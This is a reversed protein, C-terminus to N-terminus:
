KGSLSLAWLEAGSQVNLAYLKDNEAHVYVVGNSTYLPALVKAELTRLERRQNNEIAYVKGAETAVIVSGGVVAPSSSIPRELNIEAVESGSEADVVYVKGDLCGAYINNGSAAPSAWFWNGGMFKWKLSGDEVRVAYLHRDFSGFYLADNYIIPTSTIAGEAEFVWKESGDATNLAYLRKDFSGIYLTDGDVFPTSWLKDETAFEWKKDGTEADLAYVKGDSNGFFVKDGAVVLGGIIPQLSGQRPYVWRLAGSNSNLAYVIGNYGGVYVLGGNVAPTGYIAVPVSAPACGFGGGARASPELSVEWQQAGSTDMSILKGVSPQPECGLGGGATRLVPAVYLTGGAVAVGSGGEPTSKIGVCGAGILGVALLLGIIFLVKDKKSREFRM